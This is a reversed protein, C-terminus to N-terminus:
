NYKGKSTIQEKFTVVESWRNLEIQFNNAELFLDNGRVFIWRTLLISTISHIFRM